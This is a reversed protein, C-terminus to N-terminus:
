KTDCVRADKTRGHHEHVGNVVVQERSGRVGITCAEYHEFHSRYLRHPRFHTLQLQRTRVTEPHPEFRVSNPGQRSRGIDPWDSGLSPRIPNSVRDSDSRKDRSRRESEAADWERECEWM